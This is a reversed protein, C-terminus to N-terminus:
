TSKENVIQVDHNGYGKWERSLFFLIMWVEVEFISYIAEVIKKIQRGVKVVPIGLQRM